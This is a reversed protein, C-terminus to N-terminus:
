NKQTTYKLNSYCTMTVCVLNICVNMTGKLQQYSVWIHEDKHNITRCSHTCLQMVHSYTNVLTPQFTWLSVTICHDFKVLHPKNTLKTEGATWVSRGDNNCHKSEWPISARMRIRLFTRLQLYSRMMTGISSELWTNKWTPSCFITLHHWILLIHYTILWNLAVTLWDHVAAMAVVSEHAPANDQHFLVGKM